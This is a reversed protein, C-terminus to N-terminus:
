TEAEWHWLVFQGVAMIMKCHLFKLGYTSTTMTVQFIAHLNDNNIASM